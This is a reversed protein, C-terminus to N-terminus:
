STELLEKFSKKCRWCENKGTVKAPMECSCYSEVIKYHSFRDTAFGRSLLIQVFAKAYADNEGKHIFENVLDDESGYIYVPEGDINDVNRREIKPM